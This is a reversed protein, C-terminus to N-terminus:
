DEDTRYLKVTLPQYDSNRVMIGGGGETDGQMWQLENLIKATDEVQQTILQELLAAVYGMLLQPEMLALEKARQEAEVIISNSSKELVKKEMDEEHIQSDFSKDFDLRVERQIDKATDFSNSINIGSTHERVVNVAQWGKPGKEKTFTVVEGEQLIIGQTANTDVFLDEGDEVSIFGYGRISNFWKVRGRM